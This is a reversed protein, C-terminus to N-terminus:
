IGGLASCATRQSALSLFWKLLQSGTFAFRHCSASSRPKVAQLDVNRSSTHCLRCSAIKTTMSAESVLHQPNSDGQRCWRM